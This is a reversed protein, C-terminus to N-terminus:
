RSNGRKAKVPRPKMAFWGIVVLPIGLSIWSLVHWWDDGILAALLGLLSLGTLILPITWVHWFESKM